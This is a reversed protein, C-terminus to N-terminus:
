NILRIANQARSACFTRQLILRDRKRFRKAMCQLGTSAFFVDEEEKNDQPLSFSLEHQVVYAVYAYSSLWSQPFSM